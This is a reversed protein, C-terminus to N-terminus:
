GRMTRHGFELIGLTLAYNLAHLSDDPQSDPHTYKVSRQFDDYEAVEAAIEDLFAGSEQVRPFEIAQKKVRTFVAGLSASRNVTWRWLYGDQLPEHETTSYHIAYFHARHKLYDFLLRNYVHGHGQGDACLKELRFQQCLEVVKRLTQEPDESRQLREMRVVVFRFKEDMYGIVVATRSSGEGGWDIGGILNSHYRFRVDALTRAMPRPTCCAELEARTVIHDGLSTPLGLCENKFYVPDYIRQKELLDAYNIWPVMLHNIWYGDGWTSTPNRPVWRGDRPDIPAQCHPCIPGHPGLCQEDLLVDVDCRRCPVQYECARSQRFVRELHNDVTKPTGTLIERRFTSHSLTEELVPLNGDAVDQFEDILLMDADLGRAADASMFAARINVRSGNVFDMDLVALKRTRRGLLARRVIPSEKIMPQLRSRSFLRAQELRPCVLLVHLGPWTIVAHIITNALYTTKEVQRSARIM